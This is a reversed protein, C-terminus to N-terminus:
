IRKSLHIAIKCGKKVISSMIRYAPANRSNNDVAIDHHEIEEQRFQSIKEHLEKERQNNELQIIQEQYHDAIVEEVAETCMMATKTGCIATIAGLAYGAINWLPHLLTPRIKRNAIEREFYSLHPLEQDRMHAILSKAESDKIFDYQGEYIRRAGFEGAHNVRIISEINSNNNCNKM